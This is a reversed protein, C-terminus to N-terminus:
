YDHMHAADWAIEAHIEEDAIEIGTEIEVDIGFRVREEREFESEERAEDEWEVLASHIAVADDIVRDQARESMAISFSDRGIRVQVDRPLRGVRRMLMDPTGDPLVATALGDGTQEDGGGGDQHPRHPSRSAGVAAGGSSAGDSSAGGALLAAATAVAVAAAAAGVGSPTEGASTADDDRVTATPPGTAAGTAGTAAATPSAAGGDDDDEVEVGPAEGDRLKAGYALSFWHSGSSRCDQDNVVFARFSVPTGTCAVAYLQDMLQRLSYDCTTVNSLWGRRDRLDSQALVSADRRTSRHPCEASLHEEGCRDCPPGAAEPEHVAEATWWANALAVVQDNGIFRSHSGELGLIANGVTIWHQDVSDSVDCSWWDRSLSLSVCARAAVWGCSVGIQQRDETFIVDCGLHRLYSVFLRSTACGQWFDVIRVEVRLNRLWQPPQHSVGLDNSDLAPLELERLARRNCEFEQQKRWDGAGDGDAGRDDGGGDDGRREEEDDDDDDGGGDARQEEDEKEDEDHDDDGLDAGGDRAPPRIPQRRGSPSSVPPPDLHEYKEATQRSLLRLHEEHEKRQWLSRKRAINSTVRTEDPMPDFAIHEIRRVRTIAVFFLGVSSEDDGADIIVRDLTLGQAKHITVAWSAMVPFQSCSHRQGNSTSLESRKRDICVVSEIAPDLGARLMHEDDLFSPGKYGDRTSTHKRVRVLLSVAVGSDAVIIDHLIGCTGNVLGAAININWTVMVRAGRCLVLEHELRLTDENATATAGDPPEHVATITMAPAGHSIARGLYEDNLAKRRKRTTVLRKVEPGSFEDLRDGKRHLNTAFFAQDRENMEGDRCRLQLDKFYASSPTGDSREITDLFFVDQFLSYAEIGRLQWKPAGSLVHGRKKPNTYKCGSWDFGRKDKVPPLQGHDGVLVVSVGGFVEECGRVQRLLEDIHGLSRRRVMSMEDIILYRVGRWQEVMQKHRKGKENLRISARDIDDHPVPLRSHYTAGGINDAAVGTPACVMCADGLYQKLCRILYTKGSGATGCIMALLPTTAPTNSAHEVVVRYVFAQSANLTSPDVPQPAIAEFDAFARESWRAADRIEADSYQQQTASIWDFNQKDVNSRVEDFKPDVQFMSFDGHLAPQETNGVEEGEDEMFLDRFDDKCTPPADPDTM